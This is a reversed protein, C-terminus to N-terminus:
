SATTQLVMEAVLCDQEVSGGSIGLGGIIKGCLSKIPVGGGLFCYNTSGNSFNNLTKLSENNSLYLTDAKFEVATKAKAQSIEISCLLSNDMRKFLILNSSADVVTIVVDLDISNAVKVAIDALREALDLNLSFIRKLSASKSASANKLIEDSSGVNCSSSEVNCASTNKQNCDGTSYHAALNSNFGNGTNKCSETSKCNDNCSKDHSNSNEVSCTSNKSCSRSKSGEEYNKLTLGTNKCSETSKCNDNCSKDHSNSNEVSCTSNKSCSRSKSGEEYNKLTLLYNKVPNEGDSVNKLFQALILSLTEESYSTLEGRMYTEVSTNYKSDYQKYLVRNKNDSVNKLFQALILSLTEESYSTLEGRMYTEVSTNYKSDYQKYLVRNKNDLSTSILSEEWKMYILMISDVLKLKKDSVPVLLHKITKFYDPDTSEMMYGYKQAALNIKNSKANSLDKLYSSLVQEDFMNWYAARSAIFNGKQDQCSSRRGINNTNTFMEWENSVVDTISIEKNM